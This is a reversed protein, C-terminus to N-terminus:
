DKSTLTLLAREGIGYSTKDLAITGTYGTGAFTMALTVDGSVTSRGATNSDRVTITATGSDAVTITCTYYTAGASTCATASDSVVATDSSYIYIRAGSAIYTGGSDKPVVRVVAQSGTGISGTTPSRTVTL